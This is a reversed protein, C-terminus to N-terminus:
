RMPARRAREGDDDAVLAAPHQRPGVAGPEAEAQRQDRREGLRELEAAAVVLPGLHPHGEREVRRPSAAAHAVSTAGCRPGRDRRRAPREDAADQAADDPMSAARACHGISRSSSASSIVSAMAAWAGRNEASSRTWTTTRWPRARRQLEDDAARAVPAGLAQTASAVSGPTPLTSSRRRRRSRLRGAPRRRRRPATPDREAEDASGARSGADPDVGALAEDARAAQAGRSAAAPAGQRRSPRRRAKTKAPAPKGNAADDRRPSRRRARRPEGEARGDPRAGPRGGRGRPQM